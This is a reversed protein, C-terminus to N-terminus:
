EGAALVQHDFEEIAELLWGAFSAAYSLSLSIDYCRPKQRRILVAPIHALSTPAAGEAPLAGNKLDLSTGKALLDPATKGSIRIVARGASQDFVSAARRLAGGPEALAKQASKNEAIAWYELPGTAAIFLGGRSAGELPALPTKRGLLQAIARALPQATDKHAIIQNQQINQREQVTIEPSGGTAPGPILIGEFPSQWLARESM